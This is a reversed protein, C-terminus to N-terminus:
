LATIQALAQEAEHMVEHVIQAAPKIDHVLGWRDRPKPTAAHTSSPNM